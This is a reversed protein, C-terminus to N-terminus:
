YPYLMSKITKWKFMLTIINMKELIDSSPYKFKQAKTISGKMLDNNGHVVYFAYMNVYMCGHMILVYVGVVYLIYM